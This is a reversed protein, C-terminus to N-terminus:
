EDNRDEWKFNCFKKQDKAFSMFAAWLFRSVFLSCLCSLVVGLGLTFAFVGLETLGILYAVFAFLALAIHLDFIKWFSRRYANKVSTAMTRGLAVEKRAQEFVYAVSGALLVGAFAVALFTEVGIHLFPIAWVLVIMVLLWLLFTYLQAFGLLRYRVFFYVLMALALVGAGALLLPLALDGFNAGNRTVEGIEFTLGSVPRNVATDITAAVARASQDTYSGSITLVNRDLRESVSLSIVTNEGVYFFLTTSTEAASSTWGSLLRRGANTFDIEIYPTGNTMYRAGRVYDRITEGEKLTLKQATKADSGYGMTFEGTYSFYNLVVAQSGPYDPVTMQVTYDDRVEVRVGESQLREARARFIEVANSFNEKFTEGIETGDKSGYVTEKEFYVSGYPAYKEVYKGVADQKDQYDKDDPKANERVAELGELDDHYQQASIVGEPYYVATYSGGIYKRGTGDQTSYGDALENGLAADKETMVFFSNFMKIEETGYPFSVTCMFGLGVILITILALCIASKIKGM